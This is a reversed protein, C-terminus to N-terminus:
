ETPGIWNFVSTPPAGGFLRSIVIASMAELSRSFYLPGLNMPECGVDRILRAGTDAADEDDSCYPVVLTRGDFAPPCMEWVAVQCLNFAKVVSAGRARIQIREALSNHENGVTKFTEIDVPNCCDILTKGDFDGEGAGAADLADDIGPSMIAILLTDSFAVADAFTGSTASGGLEDVMAAAKAPSRGSILVEHGAGLWKRALARTMNGAGLIGIKM